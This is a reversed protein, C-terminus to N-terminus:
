AEIAEVLADRSVFDNQVAMIGLLLNRDAAGPSM